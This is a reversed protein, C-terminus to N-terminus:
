NSWDRERESIVFILQVRCGFCLLGVSPPRRCPRLWSTERERERESYIWERERSLSVQTQMDSFACQEELRKVKVPETHSPREFNPSPGARLTLMHCSLRAPSAYSGLLRQKSVWLRQTPSWLATESGVFSTESCNHVTESDVFAKNRLGWASNRLKCAASNRYCFSNKFVFAIKREYFRKNATFCDKIISSMIKQLGLFWRKKKTALVNNTTTFLM